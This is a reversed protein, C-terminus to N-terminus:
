VMNYTGTLPPPSHYSYSWRASPYKASKHLGSSHSEVIVKVFAKHKSNKRFVCGLFETSIAEVQYTPKLIPTNDIRHRPHM